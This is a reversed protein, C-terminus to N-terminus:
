DRARVAQQQEPTLGSNVLWGQAAGANQGHWLRYVTRLADLRRKDETIASAWNMAAEPARQSAQIAFSHRASDLEPGNGQKNLWEAAGVLDIETWRQIIENFATSRDSGTTQGLWWGAAEAPDTAAMLSPGLQRARESRSVPDSLMEVYARAEGPHASAWIALIAKQADGRRRPDLSDAQAMLRLRQEVTQAGQALGQHANILDIDELELARSLGREFDNRGMAAFMGGLATNHMGRADFNLTQRATSQFWGWAGEPDQEAWVPLVSGLLALQMDGKVHQALYNAAASGDSKAWRTLLMHLFGTRWNRDTITLAEEAAEQIGGVPIRALMPEIEKVVEERSQNGATLALAQRVVERASRFAPASPTSRPTQDQAAPFSAEARSPAPREVTRAQQQRLVAELERVQRSLDRNQQWQVGLPIATAVLAVVIISKTKTWAMLELTRTLTIALLGASPVGAVVAATVSAALASPAPQVAFAALVTGVTSAPFAVGRGAFFSRLSDLARSVRKRAAEESLGLGEGVERFTQQRLFHLVVANRDTERLTALGEDLLPAIRDWAADLPNPVSPPNMHAAQLERNARRARQRLLGAAERRVALVLWGAIVVQKPLTSAKRALSLFVAQTVEEALSSDGTQRLAASYVMDAHRGVLEAFAAESRAEAYDRFLDWDTKKLEM